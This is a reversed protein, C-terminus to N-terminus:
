GKAARMGALMVDYAGIPTGKKSLEAKIQATQIATAKDYELVDLRAMFGEIVFLNRKGQTTRL